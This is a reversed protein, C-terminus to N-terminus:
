TRLMFLVLVAAALTFIVLPAHEISQDHVAQFIVAGLERLQDAANTLEGGSRSAGFLGSVHDRVRSDLTVLALLLVLIGGGSLLADDIAVKRRRM